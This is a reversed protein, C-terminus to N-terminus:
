FEVSAARNSNVEDDVGVSASFSQARGGVNINLVSEAHTGFGHEFTQGAIALPKGDVSKNKQPNGWTQAAVGVDLQDLWVTEATALGTTLATAILGFALTIRSKM